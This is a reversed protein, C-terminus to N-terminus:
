RDTIADIMMQVQGGLIATRAQDSGKHPVTCSTSAPWRGKLARRGHSVAHWHGLLRLQAQGPKAKALAIFEKLNQAPVSPHIVM